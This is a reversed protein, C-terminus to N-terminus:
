LQTLFFNQASMRPSVIQSDNMTAIDWIGSGLRHMHFDPVSADFAKLANEPLQQFDVGKGGACLSVSKADPQIERDHFSACLNFFNLHVRNMLRRQRPRRCSQLKWLNTAGNEDASRAGFDDTNAAKDSTLARSVIRECIRLQLVTAPWM